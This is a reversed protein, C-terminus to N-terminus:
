PPLCISHRKIKREQKRTVDMERAPRIIRTAIRLVWDNSLSVAVPIYGLAGGAGVPCGGLCLELMFHVSLVTGAHARSCLTALHQLRLDQQAGEGLEDIAVGGFFAKPPIVHQNAYNVM